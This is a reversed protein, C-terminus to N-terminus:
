TQQIHSNDSMLYLYQFTDEHKISLIRLNEVLFRTVIENKLNHQVILQELESKKLEHVNDQLLQQLLKLLNPNTIKASTHNSYCYHYSATHYIVFPRVIFYM